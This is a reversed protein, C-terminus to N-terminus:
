MRIEIKKQNWVAGKLSGVGPLVSGIAWPIAKALRFWHQLNERGRVGRDFGM